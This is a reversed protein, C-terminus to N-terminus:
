IRERRTTTRNRSAGNFAAELLSEFSIPKQFVLTGTRKIIEEGLVDDVYGSIVVFQPGTEGFEELIELGTRGPMKLNLFVVDYDSAKLHNSAEIGNSVIDAKLGHKSLGRAMLAQLSKEDEAILIRCGESLLRGLSKRIAKLGRVLDTQDKSEFKSRVADSPLLSIENTQECLSDLSDEAGAKLKRITEEHDSNM